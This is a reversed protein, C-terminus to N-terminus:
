CRPRVYSTCAAVAGEPIILTMRSNPELRLSTGKELVGSASSTGGVGGLGDTMSNKWERLFWTVSGKVTVRLLVMTVPVTVGPFGVKKGRGGSVCSATATAVTEGIGWYASSVGSPVFRSEGYDPDVATPSFSRSTAPFGRRM